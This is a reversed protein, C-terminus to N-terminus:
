TLVYKSWIIGVFIMNVILVVVLMIGSISYDWWNLNYSFGYLVAQFIGFPLIIYKLIFCGDGLKHRNLLFWNSEVSVPSIM